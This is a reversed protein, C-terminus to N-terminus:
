SPWEGNRTALWRVILLVALTILLYLIAFILGQLDTLKAVLPGNPNVVSYNVFNYTTHLLSVPILSWGTAVFFFAFIAGTLVRVGRDRICMESGVLGM